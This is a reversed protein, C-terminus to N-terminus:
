WTGRLQLTGPGLGVQTTAGSSEPAGLIWLAAGGAIAVAGAVFGITSINGASIAENWLNVGNNDPCFQSDPCVNKADDHKSKSDLGFKIGIGLAIVGAGAAVLAGIRRGGLGGSPPEPTAPSSTLTVGPAVSGEGASRAGLVIRERRGKEGERILLQKETKPNGPTEFSFTHAGPDVAIAAGELHDTLVEGDMTVKVAILDTGAADKAEFVITPLTANLENVGRICEDRVDGPCSRAACTLLKARADRLKNQSRATLSAENASLCEATTPDAGQASRAQLATLAIGAALVMPRVRSM